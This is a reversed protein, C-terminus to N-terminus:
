SINKNRLGSINDMLMFQTKCKEFFLHELHMKSNSPWDALNLRFFFPCIYEWTNEFYFTSSELEM